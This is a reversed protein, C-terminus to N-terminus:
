ESALAGKVIGSLLDNVPAMSGDYARHGVTITGPAGPTEYVFIGYPCHQVNAIDAEMVARSVTASCFTFINAETFISTDSGVDARTRELMSGVHSVHDIVLGAGVIASEVAFTVNEFSDEVTYIVPATEATVPLAVTLALASALTAIRLM